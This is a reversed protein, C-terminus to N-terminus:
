VFAFGSRSLRGPMGPLKASRKPTSHKGCAHNGRRATRSRDLLRAFGAAVPRQNPGTTSAAPSLQVVAKYSISPMSLDRCLSDMQKTKGTTARRVAIDTARSSSGPTLWARNTGVISDLSAHRHRTQEVPVIQAVSKGMPAFLDRKRSHPASRSRADFQGRKGFWAAAEQQSSVEPKKAQRLDAASSRLVALGDRAGRFRPPYRWHCAFQKLLLHVLRLPVRRAREGLAHRVM